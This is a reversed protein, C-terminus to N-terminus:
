SSPKLKVVIRDRFNLDVRLIKDGQSVLKEQIAAYRILKEEVNESGVYMAFAPDKLVVSWGLMPDWDVSAPVHATHTRVANAVLVGQMLIKKASSLAAKEKWPGMLQPVKPAEVSAYWSFVEGKDSIFFPKKANWYLAPQKEQVFVMLNQHVDKKIVVSELMDISSLRLTLDTLDQQSLPKGAYPEFFSKLDAKSIHTLGVIDVKRMGAPQAWAHTMMAFAVCLAM